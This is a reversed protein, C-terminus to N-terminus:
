PVGRDKREVDYNREKVRNVRRKRGSEILVPVAHLYVAPQLPRDFSGWLRIKFEVSERLFALQLNQGGERELVPNDYVARVVENIVAQIQERQIGGFRHTENCFVLYFLEVAKPPFRREEETLTVEATIMASHDQIDYLYVGVRYDAEEWPSAFMILDRDRVFEPCLERRLMELLCKGTQLIESELCEKGGDM